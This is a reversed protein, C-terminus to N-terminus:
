IVLNEPKQLMLGHGGGEMQVFWAKPIIETILLSNASVTLTDNM